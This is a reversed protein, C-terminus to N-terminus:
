EIVQNNNNINLKRIKTAPQESSLLLDPIASAHLRKRIKRGLLEHEMDRVFNGDSFHNVCIVFESIAKGKYNIADKWKQMQDGKPYLKLGPLKCGRVACRRVM